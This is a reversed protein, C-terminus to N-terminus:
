CIRPLPRPLVSVAESTSNRSSKLSCNTLGLPAEDAGKKQLIWQRGEKPPLFGVTGLFIIPVEVRLMEFEICVDIDRIKQYLDHEMAM